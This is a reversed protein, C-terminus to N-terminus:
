QAPATRAALADAVAKTVIDAIMKAQASLDPSSKGCKIVFSASPIPGTSGMYTRDPCDAELHRNLEKQFELGGAKGTLEGPIAGGSMCGSLALGGVALAILALRM